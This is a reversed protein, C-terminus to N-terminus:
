LILIPLLPPWADMWGDPPTSNPVVRMTHHHVMMSQTGITRVDQLLKPLNHLISIKTTTRVTLQHQGVLWDCDVVSYTM